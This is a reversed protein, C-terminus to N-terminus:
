FYFKDRPQFWDQKELEGIASSVLAFVDEHSFGTGCIVNYFGLGEGKKYVSKVHTHLLLKPSLNQYSDDPYNSQM